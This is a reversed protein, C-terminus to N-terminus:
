RFITLSQGVRITNSRLNNWSKLNGVTVGYRGAIGILTDGSRVTHTTSSRSSGTYIQLRQGVRIRSGSIGNWQRLQSVTVNHRAAIEGLTDGSVVRYSISEQGSQSDGAVADTYIALRENVNIRTGSKNNWGQIQSVSVGYRSAIRALTDGSRVTYVM